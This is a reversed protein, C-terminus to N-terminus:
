RRPLVCRAAIAGSPVPHDAPIVRNGIQGEDFYDGPQLLAASGTPKIEGSPGVTVANPLDEMRAPPCPPRAPATMAGSQGTGPPKCPKGSGAFALAPLVVVAVAVSWSTKM